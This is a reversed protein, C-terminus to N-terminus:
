DFFIKKAALYPLVIYLLTDRILYYVFVAVLLKWGYKKLLFRFRYSLRAGRSMGETGELPRRLDSRFTRLGGRMRAFLGRTQAQNETATQPLPM